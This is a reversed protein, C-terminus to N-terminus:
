NGRVITEINSRTDISLVRLTEFGLLVVVLALVIMLTKM